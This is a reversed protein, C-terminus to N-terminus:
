CIQKQDNTFYEGEIDLPTDRDSGMAWYCFLRYNINNLSLRKVFPNSIIKISTLNKFFSLYFPSFVSRIQNNDLNLIKLQMPLNEAIDEISKIRNGSFNLEELKLM